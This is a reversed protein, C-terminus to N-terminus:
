PNTTADAAIAFPQEAWRGVWRAVAITGMSESTLAASGTARAGTAV